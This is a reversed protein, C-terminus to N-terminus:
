AAGGAFAAVYEYASRVFRFPGAPAQRAPAPAAQDLGGRLITKVTAYDGEGHTAVLQCAAELREAGYTEALHLLRVAVGRKDVPRSALLAEVMALTAPGLAQAQQRCGERTLQIGAAKGPPLHGMVTRRQGPEARDHIAVLEHEAYIRVLRTGGRVWLKQGVLRYPASYWAREFAVHCDRQLAVQKWTAMDYAVVPLAALASHEVAGFRVAPPVQTTGHIREAAVDRCWGLLRANLIDTPEPDRGALFNRKVYHVGGQEVKGKLNPRAPPNPDILFGYHTAFERYARQVEPDERCAELIAAKLNDLVVRQVVGGFFEFARRHCELWTAVKQDYVLWCFLHRSWSLVMVFVWTKRLEGTAPDITRGAYGFDVQAEEGPETELRVCVEPTAPELRRVLRRVAEYSVPRGHREELRGRIAAMEMGRERLQRIEETYAALSSAQQPGSRQPLTAALREHVLEAEPMTTRDLFGQAGAWKVFKVVTPRTIGLLRAIETNNRGLRKLRVVEHVQM